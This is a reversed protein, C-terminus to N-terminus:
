KKSKKGKKGLSASVPASVCSCSESAFSKRGDAGKYSEDNKCLYSPCSARRQAALSALAQLSKATTGGGKGDKRAMSMAMGQDFMYNSCVDVMKNGAEAFYCNTFTGDAPACAVFPAGASAYVSAGSADRPDYKTPAGGAYVCSNGGQKGYCPVCMADVMNYYSSAGPVEARMGYAARYHPEVSNLMAFQDINADGGPQYM